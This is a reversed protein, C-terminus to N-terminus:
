LICFNKEIKFHVCTSNYIVHIFDFKIEIQQDTFFNADHRESRHHGILWSAKSYIQMDIVFSSYSVFFISNKNNKKRKRIMFM